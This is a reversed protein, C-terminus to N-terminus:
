ISNNNIKAPKNVGYNDLNSRIERIKDLDFTNSTTVQGNFGNSNDIKENKNEQENNTINEENIKINEIEEAKTSININLCTFLTILIIIIKKM